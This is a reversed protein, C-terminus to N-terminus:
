ITELSKVQNGKASFWFLMLGVVSLLIQPALEANWARTIFIASFANTILTSFALVSAVTIAPSIKLARYWTYVYALLTMATALVWIIQNGNIAVVKQLANPITLLSAGILLLSGVGMRAFTLIDADVNKLVKKAIINEVAWLITAALIMVEGTSFKFGTFGGIFLNSGFLALLGVIQLKTMKEKLFPLALLAVWIILTKHILAANIASASSLGTFFLYFPLAGGVLGVLLLGRLNRKELKMIKAIKGTSLLVALIVLGVITNKVTTFLLPPTVAGVAFKNIFISVGSIIATLLAIYIGKMERNPM